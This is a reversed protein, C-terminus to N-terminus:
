YCVGGSYRIDRDCLSRADFVRAATRGPDRPHGASVTRLYVDYTTTANIDYQVSCHM